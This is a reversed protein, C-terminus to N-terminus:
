QKRAYEKFDEYKRIYDEESYEESALVLLTANKSFNSIERWLCPQIYLIKGPNDLLVVTRDIGNDLLIECTGGLCIMLQKLQKHAHNGRIIKDSSIDTIYYVRKVDFPLM